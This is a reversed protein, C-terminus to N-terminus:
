LIKISLWRGDLVLITHDNQVVYILLIGSVVLTQGVIATAMRRMAGNVDINLVAGNDGGMAMMHVRFPAGGGLQIAIVSGFGNAPAVENLVALGQLEGVLVGDLIRHVVPVIASGQDDPFHRVAIQALIQALHLIGNPGVLHLDMDAVNRLGRLELVHGHFTVLDCQVPQDPTPLGEGLGHQIVL